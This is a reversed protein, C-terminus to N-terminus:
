LGMGCCDEEEEEVIRRRWLGEWCEEKEVTTRCLGGCNKVNKKRELGGDVTGRGCDKGKVTRRRWLGRGCDGEGTM